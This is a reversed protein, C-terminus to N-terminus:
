IIGFDSSVQFNFISFSDTYHHVFCRRKREKSCLLLLGIFVSKLDGTSSCITNCLPLSPSFSLSLSIACKCKQVYLINRIVLYKFRKRDNIIRSANIKIYLNNYIFFSLDSFKLPFGFKKIRSRRGWKLPTSQCM